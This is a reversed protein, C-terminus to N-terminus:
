RRGRAEDGGPPFIAFCRIYPIWGISEMKTSQEVKVPETIEEPKQDDNDNGNLAGQRHAFSQLISPLFITFYPIWSISEM